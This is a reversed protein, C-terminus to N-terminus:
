TKGLGSIDCDDVKQHAKSYESETLHQAMDEVYRRAGDIDGNQAMREAKMIIKEPAPDPDERKIGTTEGANQTGLGSTLEQDVTAVVEDSVHDEDTRLSVTALPVNLGTSDPTIAMDFVIKPPDERNVDGLDIICTNKKWDPDITSTQDVLRYYVDNISVFENPEIRMEAGRAIVERAKQVEQRFFEKLGKGSTIDELEGQTRQALNLMQQRNYENGVGAAQIIIGKNSYDQELQRDTPVTGEGDSILVIWEVAENGSMQRLLDRSKKLGAAIDTGGGTSIGRIASKAQRINNGSTPSVETQAHSEFSVIGFKDQASLQEIAKNLGSKAVDMKSSGGSNLFSDVVVNMIDDSDTQISTNMSGSRDICFAIHLPYERSQGGIDFDVIGNAATTEGVLLEEVNTTAYIDISM